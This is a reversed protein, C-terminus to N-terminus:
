RDIQDYYPSKISVKVPEDNYPETIWSQDMPRHKHMFKIIAFIEEDMGDSFLLELTLNMEEADMRGESRMQLLLNIAESVESKTENNNM